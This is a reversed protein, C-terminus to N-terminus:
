ALGAMEDSEPTSHCPAPLSRLVRWITTTSTNYSAALKPISENGVRYRHCLENRQVETLKWRRGLSKGAAKARLRGEATRALISQRELKAVVGLLAIVVEAFDGATDILSEGLSRIAAGRQKAEHIINLLDRTDRALRDIRTVVLVDGDRLFELTRRLEPRKNDVGSLKEQFIRKCGLATLQEVQATLDQGVTSVRAYGVLAM